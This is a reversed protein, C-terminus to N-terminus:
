GSNFIVPGQVYLTIKKGAMCDLKKQGYTNTLSNQM